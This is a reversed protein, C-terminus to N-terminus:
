KALSIESASCFRTAPVNIWDFLKIYCLLTFTTTGILANLALQKTAVLLCFWFELYFSLINDYISKAIREERNLPLTQRLKLSEM